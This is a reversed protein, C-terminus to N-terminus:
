NAFASAGLVNDLEAPGLCGSWVAAMNTSPWVEQTQDKDRKWGMEHRDNIDGYCGISGMRGGCIMEAVPRHLLLVHGKVGQPHSPGLGPRCVRAAQEWVLREQRPHAHKLRPARSLFCSLCM